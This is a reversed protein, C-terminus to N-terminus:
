KILLMKKTESYQDSIMRYFYVGSTLQSGDFTTEYTGSQLKENVLTQVERGTIDYVIIKVNNSKSVDFKIRTTPNFPNPYNQSLSYNNPIINNIQEIYTTSTDGYKIGNIICGKLTGNYYHSYAGMTLVDYYKIIGFYSNYHSEM